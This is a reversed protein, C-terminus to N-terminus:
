VREYSSPFLADIQEDSAGRDKMCDICGVAGKEHCPCQCYPGSDCLNSHPSHNGREVLEEIQEDPMQPNPTDPPMYAPRSPKRDDMGDLVMRPSKLIRWAQTFADAM